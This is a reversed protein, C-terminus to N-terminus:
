RIGKGRTAGNELRHTVAPLSLDARRLGTLKLILTNAAQFEGKLYLSAGDSAVLHNLIARRKSPPVKKRILTRKIQALLEVWRQAESHLHDKVYDRIRKALAPSKGGSSVAITMGGKSFVAPVIFGDSDSRDALNFPIRKRRGERAVAENVSPQDTAAFALAARDLDGRRYPRHHVIIRKEAEWRALRPTLSPTIVTIAAGTKLLSATKREAVTGGGIVVVPRGKLNLFLPYYNM